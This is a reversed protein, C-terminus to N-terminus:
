RPVGQLERHRRLVMDVVGLASDAAQHTGMGASGADAGVYYLGELPSEPSPKKRGCQGVIQGVGVCEGGQGPLVSDRTSSSIEAPGGYDKSEVAAWAEPFILSMMEDMKQWLMPIEKAKPDPSCITGAVLCQKGAPAMDPDYNSPVTIFLIVEDPEEGEQVREFRETDRWSDDAYVVYMPLELARRNLFYRAGTFGWGPELGKIYDVYPAEFHDAGVLKLVTPQIGASSVVIPAHYHRGGARAGTVRGGEVTIQDVRSRTMLKGGSGVFEQAMVDVLRGFGGVYNGGGGQFAIQQMIKVQESASVQDIPEALSANAQFALYSYLPYPVDHRSIFDHMSVDDLEDVAESPLMVMETLFRLATAREDETLNWLDFFQRADQMSQVFAASRYKEWGKARYSIRVVENPDDPSLCPKLASEVGLERFVTEFASGRMPVQGHPWLDYEFGAKSVTIMKGGLQANKELLLTALGRKALLAATAAGGPGSGIVIADYEEEAL